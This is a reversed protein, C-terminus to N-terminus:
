DRKVNFSGDGRKRKGRKERSKKWKEKFVDHRETGAAAKLPHNSKNTEKIM